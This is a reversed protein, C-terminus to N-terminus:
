EAPTFPQVYSQGNKAYGIWVTHTKPDVTISHTTKEDPVSGLATLSNGSLRAVSIQGQGSASYVLHNGPDYAIQDVGPAIKASGLIKGNSPDMLVLTGDFCAILLKGTAPVDATGHPRPHALPWVHVIRNTSPDIVTISAPNQLAQYIAKDHPAFVIGELGEGKLKITAIVKNAAPNIAWLTPTSDSVLYVTQNSSDYGNLDTPTPRPMQAVIKLTKRNVTILRGPDNGSIYYLNHKLDISVDQTTGAPIRKLLKRSGLDFVEFASNGKEQDLLLRNAAADVQIFDFGGHVGALAIPQGPNLPPAAHAAIAVGLLGSAVALRTLLGASFNLKM